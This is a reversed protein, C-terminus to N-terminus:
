DVSMYDAYTIGQSCIDIDLNKEFDRICIEDKAMKRVYDIPDIPTNDDLLKLYGDLYERPDVKQNVEDTFVDDEYWFLTIRTRDNTYNSFESLTIEYLYRPGDPEKEEQFEMEVETDPYEIADETDPYEYHEPSKYASAYDMINPKNKAANALEQREEEPIDGDEIKIADLLQQEKKIKDELKEKFEEIPMRGSGPNKKRVVLYTIAAGVAAGSAFILGYKIKQNM